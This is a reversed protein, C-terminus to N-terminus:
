HTFCEEDQSGQKKVRADRLCGARLFFPFLHHISAKFQEDVRGDQVLADFLVEKCELPDSNCFLSFPTAAALTLHERIHFSFNQLALSQGSQFESGDLGRKRRM